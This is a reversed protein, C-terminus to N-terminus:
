DVPLNKYEEDTMQVEFVDSADPEQGVETYSNEYDRFEEAEKRTPFVCKGEVSDVYVAYYTKKM